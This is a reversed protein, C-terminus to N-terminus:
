QFFCFLFENESFDKFHVPLSTGIRTGHVIDVFLDNDLERLQKFYFTSM